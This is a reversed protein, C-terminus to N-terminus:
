NAGQVDLTARVGYIISPPYSTGDYTVTNETATREFSLARVGSGRTTLVHTAVANPAHFGFYDFLPNTSCTLCGLNSDPRLLPELNAQLPWWMPDTTTKGSKPAAWGAPISAMLVTKETGHAFALDVIRRIQMISEATAKNGDPFPAGWVGGYPEPEGSATACIIVVDGGLAPITAEVVPAPVLWGPFLHHRVNKLERKSLIVADTRPTKPLEGNARTFCDGRLANPTAELTMASFCGACRPSLAAADSGCKSRTCSLEFTERGAACGTVCDIAAAYAAEESSSCPPTTPLTPVDGQNDHMDDFPTAPDVARYAHYPYNAKVANAVLEADYRLNSLCVVDSVDDKLHSIVGERLSPMIPETRVAAQVDWAEVILPGSTSAGSDGADTTDLQVTPAVCSVSLVAWLAHRM